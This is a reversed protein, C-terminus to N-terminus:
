AILCKWLLYTSATTENCVILIVNKASMQKCHFNLINKGEQM